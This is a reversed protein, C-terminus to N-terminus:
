IGSHNIRQCLEQAEKEALETYTKYPLVDLHKEHFHFVEIDIRKRNDFVQSLYKDAGGRPCHESLIQGMCEYAKRSIMPFCSFVRGENDKTAGYLFDGEVKDVWGKTRVECDDTLLWIYEGVSEKALENIYWSNSADREFEYGKVRGDGNDKLFEKTGKDDKDYGVLVEYRGSKGLSKIMRRLMPVRGRSRLLISVLM